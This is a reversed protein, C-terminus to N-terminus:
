GIIYPEAMPVAQIQGENLVMAQLTGTFPCSVIKIVLGWIYGKGGDHDWFKIMDGTTVSLFDEVLEYDPNM